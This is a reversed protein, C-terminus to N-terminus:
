TTTKDPDFTEIIPSTIKLIKEKRGFVNPATKPESPTTSKEKITPLLEVTTREVSMDSIPIYALIEPRVLEAIIESKTAPVSMSIHFGNSSTYSGDNWNLKRADRPSIRYAVLTSDKILFTKKIKSLTKSTRVPVSEFILRINRSITEDDSPVCIAVSGNISFIDPITDTTDSGTFM